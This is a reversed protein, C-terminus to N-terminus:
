KTAPLKALDTQIAALAKDTVTDPAYQQVSKLTMGRAMGINENATFGPLHKDVVAKAAPDDLLTGIDTAEVNYAAAAAPAATQAYSGTASVSAAMLLASAIFIRKM